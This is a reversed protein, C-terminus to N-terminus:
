FRSGKKMNEEATLWQHNEPALAIKIQELNTSGDKEIFKFSSLPQIHDIHYNEIDKPFPTLHKIIADMDVGYKKLSM